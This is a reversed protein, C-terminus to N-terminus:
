QGSHGSPNSTQQRSMIHFSVLLEETKRELTLVGARPARRPTPRFSRRNFGMREKDQVKRQSLTRMWQGSQETGCQESQSVFTTAAPQQHDEADM